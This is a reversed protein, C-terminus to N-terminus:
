LTSNAFSGNGKDPYPFSAITKDTDGSQSGEILLCMRSVPGKLYPVLEM